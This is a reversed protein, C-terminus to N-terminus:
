PNLESRLHRSLKEIQKLKQLVDKPLIGKKVSEVDLPISQATRALEAADRQVAILDIRANVPTSANDSTKVIPTQQSAPPNPLGRAMAQSKASECCLTLVALCAFLTLKKMASRRASAGTQNAM